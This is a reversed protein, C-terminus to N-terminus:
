RVAPRRVVVLLSSGVLLLAFALLLMLEADAGTVPLQASVANAPPVVPPEVEADDDDDPGLCPADPENALQCVVVTGNNVAVADGTSISGAPVVVLSGDDTVGVDVATTTNSGSQASSIGISFVAVIQRITASPGGVSPDSNGVVTQTGTISSGVDLNVAGNTLTLSSPVSPAADGPEWSNVSAFLEALYAALQSVIAQSTADLTPSLSVGSDNLGTNAVAAGVNGVSVDQQVTATGDGTATAAATQSIYTASNNGIATANGTTVADAGSSAYASLLAPLLAAFLQTAATGDPANVLADALDTVGNFGSNALSVGINVVVAQQGIVLHASDSGTALATQTIDTTSMNGTATASGATVPASGAASGSVDNVGSNAVAVGVRVTISVQGTSASPTGTADATGNQTVYNTGSNGVAVASGTSVAGGSANGGAANNGSTANAVGLNFVFVIQTIDATANGTLVATAQQSVATEDQSGVATAPGTSVGTGAVAASASSGSAAAATSSGDGAVIQNGGTNAVAVDVGTITVTQDTATGGPAEAEDVEPEDAAPDDAATEDTATEDAAPDDVNTDDTSPVDTGTDAPPATTPLETGSPDLPEGSESIPVYTVTTPVENSADQTTAEATQPIPAEAGPDDALAPLAGAVFLVSSM